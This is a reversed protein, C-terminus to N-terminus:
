KSRRAKYFKSLFFCPLPQSTTDEFAQWYEVEKVHEFLQISM